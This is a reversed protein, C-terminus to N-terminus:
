IRLINRINLVYVNRGSIHRQFAVCSNRSDPRVLGTIIHVLNHLKMEKCWGTGSCFNCTAWFSILGLLGLCLCHKTRILCVAYIKQQTLCVSLFFSLFSVACPLQLLAATFCFRSLTCVCILPRMSLGGVVCWFFGFLWCLSYLFGRRSVRSCDRLAWVILCM